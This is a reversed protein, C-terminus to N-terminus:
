DGAMVIERIFRSSEVKSSDVMDVTFLTLNYKARTMAVYFLRREEELYKFNDREAEEISTQSPFDGEVLDILFVNEFELGKASHITSLNINSFSSNLCKSRLINLRERLEEQNKLDESILELFKLIISLSSFGYGFKDSFEKLYDLYALDHKIYNIAEKAKLSSLKKFDLELSSLRDLYFPKIDPYSKIRKFVSDKPNLKKAYNVQKKSIYGKKKYYIKEYLGINSTDQAFDLFNFVDELIWHNFFKLNRDKIYFDLKNKELQNILGIASINNRYLIAFEGQPNKLIKDIIYAYQDEIKTLRVLKVPNKGGQSTFIDKRFRKMNNSILKKSAKIISETSRFNEEMLFIEADSYISKFNLLADPYAGRFGYISQDDDAVVFLNNEPIALLKIIELQLLSTDQGEDLQIFDYKNRYYNLTNQNNKLINLSMSLMDDFDIYNNQRKIDEYQRYIANFNPIERPNLDEPSIMMNKVYGIYNLLSEMADETIYTRNIELFIQRLLSYKNITNKSDEILTFVQRTTKAYNRLLNFCFSHITSFEVQYSLDKFERNFRNKMDRASAKSFTISLIKRPNIKHKEILNATRHILVTTKGAGPVALILAPGKFHAMAKEQQKTLLINM